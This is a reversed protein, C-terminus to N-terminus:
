YVFKSMTLNQDHINFVDVIDNNRTLTAIGTINVVEIKYIGNDYNRHSVCGSIFQFKQAELLQKFNM